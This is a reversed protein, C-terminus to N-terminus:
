NELTGAVTPRSRDRGKVSPRSRDTGAVTPNSRDRGKVTWVSVPSDDAAAGAAVGSYGWGSQQRWAVPKAADPTVGPVWPVGAVSAASRRKAATDIPM